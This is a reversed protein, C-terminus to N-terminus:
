IGFEKSDPALRAREAAIQEGVWKQISDVSSSLNADDDIPEDLGIDVKNFEFRVKAKLTLGYEVLIRRRGADVDWVVPEKKRDDGRVAAEERAIIEDVVSKLANYLSERKYEQDINASMTITIRAFEYDGLSVTRGSSVSVKMSDEMEAWAAYWGSGRFANFVPKDQSNQRFARSVYTGGEVYEVNMKEEKVPRPRRVEEM